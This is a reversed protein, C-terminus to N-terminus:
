PGRQFLLFPPSPASGLPWPAIHWFNCHLVTAWEGRSEQDHQEIKQALSPSSREALLVSLNDDIKAVLGSVQVRDDARDDGRPM